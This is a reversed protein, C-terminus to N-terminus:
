VGELVIYGDEGELLIYSLGDETVSVLGSITEEIEESVIYGTGDETLIFGLGNETILAFGDIQDGLSVAGYSRSGTNFAKLRPGGRDMGTLRSRGAARLFIGFPVSAEAAIEDDAFPLAGLANFGLM